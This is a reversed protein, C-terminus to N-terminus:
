LSILTGNVRFPTPFCSACTKWCETAKGVPADCISLGPARALEARLNVGSSHGVIMLCMRRYIYHLDKGREALICAFYRRTKVIGSTESDLFVFSQLKLIDKRM